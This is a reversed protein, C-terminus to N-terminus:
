LLGASDLGWQKLWHQLSKLAICKGWSSFQIHERYSTLFRQWNEDSDPFLRRRARAVDKGANSFLFPGRIAFTRARGYDICQMDGQTTLLLNDLSLDGHTVRANHMAALHRGLEQTQELSLGCLPEGDIFTRTHVITGKQPSLYGQSRSTAMGAEELRKLAFHERKWRRNLPFILGVRAYEKILLPGKRSVTWYDRGSDHTQILVEQPEETM